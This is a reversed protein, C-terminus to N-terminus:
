LELSRLSVVVLPVVTMLGFAPLICLVLPFIQLVPVRRARQEGERRRVDRLEAGLRDLTPSLPAGTRVSATLADALREGWSGLARVAGLSEVTRRGDIISSAAGACAPGVPPPTHDGVLELAQPVTLGASVALRLLDVAEPMRQLVSREHRAVCRAQRVRPLGWALLVWPVVLLPSWLSLVFAGIITGGLVRARAGVIDRGLVRLVIAGVRDAPVLVFRTCGALPRPGPAAAGPVTSASGHDLRRVRRTVVLSRMRFGVTLALAM